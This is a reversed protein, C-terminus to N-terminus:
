KEAADLADSGGEAVDKVAEEVEGSTDETVGEAVVGLIEEEYPIDYEQVVVYGAVMVMGLVVGIAGAVPDGVLIQQFGWVEIPAVPALLLAKLATRRKKVPM